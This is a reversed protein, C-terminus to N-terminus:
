ERAMIERTRVGNGDVYWDGIIMEITPTMAEYGSSCIRQKYRQRKSRLYEIASDDIDYTMAWGRVMYPLWSKRWVHRRTPARGAFDPCRNRWL